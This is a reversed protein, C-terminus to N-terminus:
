AKAQTVYDIADQVTIWKSATEDGIELEFEDEIAMVLEVQDLSDAGLDNRINKEPTVSENALGFQECIIKQIRNTINM